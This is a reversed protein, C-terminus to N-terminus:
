DDWFCDTPALAGLQVLKRALLLRAPASLSDHLEGAAIPEHRGMIARLAPAISSPGQFVDGGSLTLVAQHERISVHWARGHRTVLKTRETIGDDNLAHVVHPGAPAELGRLFETAAADILVSPDLTAAEAAILAARMAVGDSLHRAADPQLIAGAPLAEIFEPRDGLREVLQHLLTKWTIPDFVIPISFSLSDECVVEHICGRPHYLVDGPSLVFDHEPEGLADPAYNGRGETSITDFLRWRKRGAVQLTFVDTEDHHAGLLETGPPTVFGSISVGPHQLALLMDRYLLRLPSQPPLFREMKRFQLSAGQRMRAYIDGVASPALSASDGKARLSVLGQEFVRPIALLEEVQSLSILSTVFDDSGGRVLLPHRGWYDRCFTEVSVPGLLSRFTRDPATLPKSCPRDVAFVPAASASPRRAREMVILQDM